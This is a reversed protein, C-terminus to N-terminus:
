LNSTLKMARSTPDATRVDEIHAIQKTRAVYGFGSEPHPRIVEGRRMAFQPTPNHLAVRRFVEGDYLNLTGFRAQCIRTANELIAEFVPELEGPSSSIVKLLESTATLQERAEELERTLRAIETKQGVAAFRSATRVKACVDQPTATQSSRWGSQLATENSGGLSLLPCRILEFYCESPTLRSAALTRKPDSASM